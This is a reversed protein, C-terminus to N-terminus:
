KDEEIAIKYNIIKCVNMFLAYKKGDSRKSAYSDLSNEYFILEKEIKNNIQNLKYIKKDVVFLNTLLTTFTTIASIGSALYYYWTPYGKWILKSVLLTAVIVLAFASLIVLLNLFINLYKLLRCKTKNHMIIKNVFVDINTQINTQFIKNM